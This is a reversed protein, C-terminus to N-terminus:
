KADIVEKAMQVLDQEGVREVDSTMLSYRLDSEWHVSCYVEEEVKDSGYSIYLQGADIAKQEEDSIEYGLPVFRYYDKTVTLTLDGYQVTEEEAHKATNDDKGLPIVSLSVRSGGNKYWIRTEPFTSLVVGADDMENVKGVNASYFALGNTFKEVRKVDVGMTQDAKKLQSYSGLKTDGGIGSVWASVNGGAVAAVSMLLCMAAAALIVKGKSIRKKMMREEPRIQRIQQKIERQLEPSMSIRGAQEELTNQILTDLEREEM